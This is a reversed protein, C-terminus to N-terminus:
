FNWRFDIYFVNSIRSRKATDGSDGYAGDWNGYDYNFMNGIQFSTRSSLNFMVSPRASFVSPSRDISGSLVERNVFARHHWLFTEDGGLRSRGGMFYVLDLRPVINNINYSGWLNFLLGPMFFIKKGLPDRRNYLFEVANFGMTLSGFRYAFTQSLIINGSESFDELRDLSVAAVATLNEIKLFRLEGILQASEQRGNYIYGYRDTDLEGDWGAKNERRFAASLRFVGPMTYSASFVYKADNIKPTISGFNPLFTGFRLINNQGASQQSILYAGIGFDLGAVPTIKLLLGLGEGVDDHIWWDATQWTNDDVIGAAVYVIDNFFSLWGYVFPMSFYGYDLRSQSQFRIRLGANENKATYSADLRFRYGNQESDVGFTKLFADTEAHSGSVIGIGSNFYSALAFDHPYLVGTLLIFVTLAFIRSM